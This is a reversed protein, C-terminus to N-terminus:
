FGPSLPLFRHRQLLDDFRKGEGRSEYEARRRKASACGPGIIGDRELQRMEHRRLVCEVFPHEAPRLFDLLFGAAPQFEFDIGVTLEDARRVALEVGRAVADGVDGPTQVADGGAAVRHGLQGIQREGPGRLTGVKGLHGLAHRLKRRFIERGFM